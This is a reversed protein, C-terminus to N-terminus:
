GEDSLTLRALKKFTQRLTDGDGLFRYHTFAHETTAVQKLFSESVLSHTQAVGFTEILVGMSKLEAAYQLAEACNEDHGDSYALVRYIVAREESRRMDDAVLQLAIHLACSLRTGGSPLFLLSDLAAKIAAHQEGVNLFGCCQTGVTAYATVAEYDQPRYRLKEALFESLAEHVLQRKSKTGDFGRESMSGSIDGCTVNKMVTREPGPSVPHAFRTKTENPTIMKDEEL